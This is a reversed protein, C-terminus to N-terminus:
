GALIAQARGSRMFATFGAYAEPSASLEKNPLASHMRVRIEEAESQNAAVISLYARPKLNERLLDLFHAESARWGIVIIKTVHRLVGRLEDITDQPCEFISKKEVPIAIAPFLSYNLDPSRM